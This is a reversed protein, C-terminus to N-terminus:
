EGAERLLASEMGQRIKDPIPVAKNTERDVWVHIMHGWASAETEGQVFIGVGCRVSSNGIREVRFGTEVNAPHTIPRHFTMQTEAGIPVLPTNPLGPEQLRFFETVATDMWFNYIANNIHQYVDNDNWRTSVTSFISYRERTEILKPKPM